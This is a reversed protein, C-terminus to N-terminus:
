LTLDHAAQKNNISCEFEVSCALTKQQQKSSVFMGHVDQLICVCVNLTVGELIRASRQNGDSGTSLKKPSTASCEYNSAQVQFNQGM